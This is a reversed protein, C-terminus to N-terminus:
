SFVKFLLTVSIALNFGIMWKLLTLDAKIAGIKHEYDAVAQAAKAAEVESAGASVLATYLESLMTAM